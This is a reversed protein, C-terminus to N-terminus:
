VNSKKGSSLYFLIGGLIMTYVSEPVTKTVFLTTVV